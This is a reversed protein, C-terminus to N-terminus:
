LNFRVAANDRTERRERLFLRKGFISPDCKRCRRKRRGHVIDILRYREDEDKRHDTGRYCTGNGRLVSLYEFDPFLKNMAPESFKSLYQFRGPLSLLLHFSLSLSSQPSPPYLPFPSSITLHNFPPLFPDSALLGSRRLFLLSIPRVSTDGRSFPLLTTEDGIRYLSFPVGQPM